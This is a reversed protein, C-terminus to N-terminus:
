HAAVPNAGGGAGPLSEDALENNQLQPQAQIAGASQPAGQPGPTGSPQAGQQFKSAAALLAARQQDAQMQLMIRKYYAQFLPMHVPGLLGFQDSQMFATLKGYQVEAGEIPDGEPMQGDLIMALAEEFFIKQHEAGPTPPELYKDPDQGFARGWDRQLRYIGDPKIIGLQLNLESVYSGMLTQLAQQMAEKSTNLANASFKFLYAGSIKDRDDIKRYPDKTPEKFGSVLYQKDKPLFAQNLTHVIKWIQALGLFFRRLVREPRADGQALVTQMGTVTRLASSKGQPVRGLQLDGISTLKEEMQNLLGLMNFGYAQSANGLQPFMVDNKPDNLPYLEGPWLRIVEPRVNSTAKYFGFPANAITGADASQDFTQKILDHLGEMMELVGISYRRGPIPFLHAEALPRMPIPSPFMQTLYRVRLITKTELIMSIVVDEDLGDGDVDLCDFVMLRTLPKHSEANKAYEKWDVAGQMVDKQQEREEYQREKIANGIKDADEQNMLDYYGSKQLRIIEDLVPVDKLIVHTAGTPNSPGPIQLNGCRVPHLVDQVDKRIIKPGDFRIADKEIEIEVEGDARTFFSARHKKKENEPTVIWDWGDKSPVLNGQPYEASLFSRFYEAPDVGDPIAPLVRIDVVSRMEKVWPVYATWFGENVFDDALEGVLEEGPQEEFVQFDILDDVTSTKEADAKKLAKAMIPPRQSMVANHLTDQMRMSATMMDPIAADSADEWPWDKGETWMRYKAHRQLRADIEDVRSQNDDQYFKYIRDGIEVKDITLSSIRSRERKMKVPPAAPNPEVVPDEEAM